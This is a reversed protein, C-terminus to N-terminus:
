PGHIELKTAYIIKHLLLNQLMGHSAVASDEPCSYKPPPYLAGDQLFLAFYRILCRASLTSYLWLNASCAHWVHWHTRKQPM